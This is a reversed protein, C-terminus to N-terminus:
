EMWGDMWGDVSGINLIFTVSNRCNNCHVGPLKNFKKCFHFVSNIVMIIFGDFADTIRINELNM